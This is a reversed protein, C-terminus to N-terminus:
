MCAGVSVYGGVCVCMYVSLHVCVGRGRVYVSMCASVCVCVSELRIPGM